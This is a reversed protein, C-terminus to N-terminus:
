SMVYLLGILAMGIVNCVTPTIMWMKYKEWYEAAEMGDKTVVTKGVVTTTDLEFSESNALSYMTVGMLVVSILMMILISAFLIPKFGLGKMM